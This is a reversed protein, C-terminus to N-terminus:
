LLEYVCKANGLLEIYPSIFAHINLDDALQQVATDLNKFQYSNANDTIRLNQRSKLEVSYLQSNQLNNAAMDLLM